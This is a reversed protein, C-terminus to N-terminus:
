GTLATALVPGFRQGDRAIARLRVM